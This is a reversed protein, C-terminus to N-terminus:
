KIIGYQPLINYKVYLSWFGCNLNSESQIQFQQFHSTHLVSNGIITSM